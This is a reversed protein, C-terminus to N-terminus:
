SPPRYAPRLSLSSLLAGLSVISLMSVYVLLTDIEEKWRGVLQGFYIKVTEATETM